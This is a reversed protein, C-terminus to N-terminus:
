LNSEALAPFVKSVKKVLYSGYSLGKAASVDANDWRREKWGNRKREENALQAESKLTDSLPVPQVICDFSPDYFFPFSVRMATPNPNRVRHPTSQYLGETVAELIDGINIVLTEPRPPVSLWSGDLCKVELGGVSDQKLLTLLGYDTHEGVGWLSADARLEEPMMAVPPYHFIRFLQLPEKSMHSEFFYTPPLGLGTAVLQILIDGIAKCTAMYELVQERLSGPRAPFLNPGHMPKKQVAVKEHDDPLEEGFYIGEKIDPKGSTFEGGVPFYGRWARGGTTMSIQNKEELPLQFFERAAADFSEELGPRIPYDQISFFGAHKCAEHVQSAVEAWRRDGPKSCEKLSIIPITVPM